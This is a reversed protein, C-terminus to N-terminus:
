SLSLIGGKDKSLSGTEEWLFWNTAVNAASSQARRQIAGLSTVSLLARGLSPGLTKLLAAALGAEVERQLISPVKDMSWDKPLQKHRLTSMYDGLSYVNWGDRCM